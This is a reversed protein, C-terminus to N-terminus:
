VARKCLFLQFVPIKRWSDLVKKFARKIVETLRQVSRSSGPQVTMLRKTYAYAIIAIYVVNKAIFERSFYGYPLVWLQEVLCKLTSKCKQRIFEKAALFLQLYFFSSSPVSMEVHRSAQCHSHNWYILSKLKM